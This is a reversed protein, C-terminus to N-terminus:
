AAMDKLHETIWGAASLKTQFGPKIVVNDSKRVVDHKKTGVNWKTTFPADEALTVAKPEYAKILDVKCYGTGIELIILEGFFGSDLKRLEIVDGVGRPNTKDHGMIKEVQNAWFSPEMAEDVTQNENLEASWRNFKFSAVGFARDYLKTTLKPAAAKDAPKNAM